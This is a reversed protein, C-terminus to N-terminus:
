FEGFVDWAARPKAPPAEASAPTNPVDDYSAIEPQRQEPQYAVAHVTKVAQANAPPTRNVYVSPTVPIASRSKSARSPAALPAAPNVAPVNYALLQHQNNERAANLIKVVYPPQGKFDAKFGTGFNGSYYCSFAKQLHAQTAGGARKFCESLIAAGTAVNKCPHFVTEYNLGFHALNKKNIQMLGMSFNRGERHLKNAAAIAESLTEPQKKLAGGVVGIVYPNFKSEVRAVAQLTDPHVTSGCQEALQNFSVRQLPAAPQPLRPLQAAMTQFPFIAALMLAITKKFM